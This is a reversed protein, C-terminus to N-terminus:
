GDEVEHWRAHLVINALGLALLVVGVSLAVASRGWAIWRSESAHDLPVSGFLNVSNLPSESMLARCPDVAAVAGQISVEDRLLMARSAETGDLYCLGYGQDDRPNM